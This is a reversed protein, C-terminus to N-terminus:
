CTRITASFSSPVSTPAMTPRGLQLPSLSSTLNLSCSEHVPIILHPPPSLLLFSFRDTSSTSTPCPYSPWRRPATCLSPAVPTRSPQKRRQPLRVVHLSFASNVSPPLFSPRLASPALPLASPALPLSLSSLLLRSPPLTSSLSPWCSFPVHLWCLSSPTTSKPTKPEAWRWGRARIPAGGAM